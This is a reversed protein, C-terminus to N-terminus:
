WTSVQKGFDPQTLDVNLHKKALDETTMSATDRLLHIYEEEFNAGKPQRLCIGLSFLYGFTYPFNYFPVDDIFFHLKAGLFISPLYSFSRSLRRQAEVMMETIKDESVLGEQRAEYFRNEFHIPFPYEHVYSFCKATKYRAFQNKKKTKRSKIYCRSRDTRRIYKSNRRCIRRM